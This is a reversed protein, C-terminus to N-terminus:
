LHCSIPHYLESVLDYNTQDNHAYRQFKRIKLEDGNFSMRLISDLSQLKEWRRSGREWIMFKTGRDLTRKYGEAQKERKWRPKRMGSEYIFNKRFTRALPNNSSNMTPQLRRRMDEEVRTRESLTTHQGLTVIPIVIWNFFGLVGMVFDVTRLGKLPTKKRAYFVNKATRIEEQTRYEWGRDDKTQGVYAHKNFPSAIYYVVHQDTNLLDEIDEVIHENSHSFGGISGLRPDLWKGPLIHTTCRVLITCMKINEWMQKWQMSQDPGRAHLIVNAQCYLILTKTIIRLIKQKELQRYRVHDQSYLRRHHKGIPYLLTIGEQPSKWPMAKFEAGILDVILIQTIMM